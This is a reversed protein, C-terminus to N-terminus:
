RVKEREVEAFLALWERAIRSWDYRQRAWGSWALRLASMKASGGHKMAGIARRRFRWLRWQSASIPRKADVPGLDRGGLTESLAAIGSTVPLCGMALAKMATICSTERTDTPYLWVGARAFGEALRDHGVFGHYAVGDQDLLRRVDAEIARLETFYGAMAEYVPTFGHYVDLEADPVARRISPWMRLVHLLGRAPCSAYIARHPENRGADRLFQPDIGNSTCHIRRRDLAAFGADTAHHRSVLLLRDIREGAEAPYPVDQRNHLWHHVQRWGEGLPIFHAMRWAIFVDGPPVHEFDRHHKWRVGDAFDECEAYITVDHGLRALHRAMHIAAEESGGIGSYLSRPGWPMLNDGCYIAVRM